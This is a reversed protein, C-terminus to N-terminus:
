EEHRVVERAQRCISERFDAFRRIAEQTVTNAIPVHVTTKQRMKAPSFGQQKEFYAQVYLWYALDTKGDYVILIVPMTQELWSLLDARDLPFAIKLGSSILKLRDTAKLQLFVNGPECEGQEDYTFLILDIGYDHVVREVAFGCQLVHREVHNASLDALIHERTRRKRRAPVQKKVVPAGRIRSPLKKKTLDLREDCEIRKPSSSSSPTFSDFGLYRLRRRGRGCGM